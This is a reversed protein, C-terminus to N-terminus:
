GANRIYRFPRMRGYIPRPLFVRSDLVVRLKPMAWHGTPTPLTTHGCLSHMQFDRLCEISVFRFAEIYGAEYSRAGPPLSFLCLFMYDGPMPECWRPQDAVAVHFVQAYIM